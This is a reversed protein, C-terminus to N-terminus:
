FLVIKQLGIMLIPHKNINRLLSLTGKSRSKSFIWKLCVKSLLYVVHSKRTINLPSSCTHLLTIVSSELVRERERERYNGEEAGASRSPKLTFGAGARRQDGGSVESEKIARGSKAERGGERTWGGVWRGVRRGSVM